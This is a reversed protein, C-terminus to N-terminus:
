YSDSKTEQFEPSKLITQISSSVELAHVAIGIEHPELITTCGVAAQFGTPSRDRVGFTVHPGLVGETGGSFVTVASGPIQPEWV